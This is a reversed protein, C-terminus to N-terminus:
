APAPSWRWHWGTSAAGARALEGDLGAPTRISADPDLRRWGCLEVERTAVYSGCERDHDEYDELLEGDSSGGVVLWAARRKCAQCRSGPAAPAAV